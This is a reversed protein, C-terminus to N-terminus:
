IVEMELRQVMGDGDERKSMKMGRVGGGNLQKDTRKGRLPSKNLHRKDSSQGGGGRVREGDKRGRPVMM